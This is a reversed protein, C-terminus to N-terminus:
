GLMSFPSCMRFFSVSANRKAAVRITRDGDVDYRPYTHQSDTQQALHNLQRSTTWHLIYCAWWLISLTRSITRAFSRETAHLPLLSKETLTACQCLWQALETCTSNVLWSHNLALKCSSLSFFQTVWVHISASAHVTLYPVSMNFKQYTHWISLLIACTYTCFYIETIVM